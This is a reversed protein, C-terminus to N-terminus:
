KDPKKEEQLKAFAELLNKIMNREINKHLFYISNWNQM